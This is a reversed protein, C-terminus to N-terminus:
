FMDEYRDLFDDGDCDGVIEKIKDDFKSKGRRLERIGKFVRCLLSIYGNDM